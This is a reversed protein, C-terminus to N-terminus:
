SNVLVFDNHFVTISHFELARKYKRISQPNRDPIIRKKLDRIVSGACIKILNDNM